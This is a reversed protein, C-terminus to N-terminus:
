KGAKNKELEAIRKLLDQIVEIEYNPNKIRVTQPEDFRGDYDPDFLIQSPDKKITYTIWRLTKEKNIFFRVSNSEGVIYSGCKIEITHEGDDLIINHM